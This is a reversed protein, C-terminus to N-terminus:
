CAPCPLFVSIDGKGSQSSAKNELKHVLVFSTSNSMFM